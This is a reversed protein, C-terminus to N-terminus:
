EKAVPSQRWLEKESESMMAITAEAARRAYQEILRRHATELTKGEHFDTEADKVIKVIRRHVSYVEKKSQIAVDLLAVRIKEALLLLNSIFVHLENLEKPTLVIRHKGKTIALVSEVTECAWFFETSPVLIHLRGIVSPPLPPVTESLIVRKAPISSYQLARLHAILIDLGEAIYTQEYWSQAVNRREIRDRWILGIIVVVAAILPGIIAKFIEFWIPM